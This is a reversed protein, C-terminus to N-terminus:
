DSDRLFPTGRVSVISGAMRYIRDVARKCHLAQFVRSVLFLGPIGGPEDAGAIQRKM